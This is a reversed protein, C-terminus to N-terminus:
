CYEAHGGHTPLESSSLGLISRMGLPPAAVRKSAAPCSLSERTSRM